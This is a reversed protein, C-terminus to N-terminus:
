GAFPPRLLPTAGFTHDAYRPALGVLEGFASRPVLYAIILEQDEASWEACADEYDSGSSAPTWERDAGILRLYAVAASCAYDQDPPTEPWRLDILALVYVAGDPAPTAYHFFPHTDRPATLRTVNLSFGYGVTVWAGPEAPAFRETSYRYITFGAANLALLSALLVALAVRWRRLQVPLGTPAAWTASV